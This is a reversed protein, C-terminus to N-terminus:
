TIYVKIDPSAGLIAFSGRVPRRTRCPRLRCFYVGAPLAATRKFTVAFTGSDGPALRLASRLVFAHM